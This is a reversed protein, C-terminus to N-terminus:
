HSKHLASKGPHASRCRVKFEPASPWLGELGSRRAQLRGSGSGARAEGGEEGWVVEKWGRVLWTCNRRGPRAWFKNGSDLVAKLTRLFGNKVTKQFVAFTHSVKAHGSYFILSHSTPFTSTTKWVYNTKFKLATANKVNLLLEIGAQTLPLNSLTCVRKILAKQFGLPRWTATGPPGQTCTRLQPLLSSGTFVPSTLRPPHATHTRKCGVNYYWLLSFVAASKKYFSYQPLHLWLQNPIVKMEFIDSWKEEDREMVGELM